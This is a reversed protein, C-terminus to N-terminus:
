LKQRIPRAGPAVVLKHEALIRAVGGLEGSWSNALLDENNWLLDELGRRLEDLTDTNIDM